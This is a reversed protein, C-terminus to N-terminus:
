LPAQHELIPITLSRNTTASPRSAPLSVFGRNWLGNYRALLSLVLSILLRSFRFYGHAARLAKGPTTSPLAEVRNREGAYWLPRTFVLTAAVRSPDM